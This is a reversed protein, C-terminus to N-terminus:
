RFKEFKNKFEQLKKSPVPLVMKYTRSENTLSYMINRLEIMMGLYETALAEDQLRMEEVTSPTDMEKYDKYQAQVIDLDTTKNVWVHNSKDWEQILINEGELRPVTIIDENENVYQGEEITKIEKTKEIIVENDNLERKKYKVKEYETMGRVLDTEPEYIIENPIDAM